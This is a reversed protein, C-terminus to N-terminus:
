VSSGVYGGQDLIKKMSEENQSVNIEEYEINNDQFYRKAARCSSCSPTTYIKIM